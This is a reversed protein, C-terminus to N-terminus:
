LSGGETGLVLVANYPSHLVVSLHQGSSPTTFSQRADSKVLVKTLTVYVAPHMPWRFFTKTLEKKKKGHFPKKLTGSSM